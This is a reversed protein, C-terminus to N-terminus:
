FIKHNLLKKQEKRILRAVELGRQLELILDTIGMERKTWLVQHYSKSWKMGIETSKM